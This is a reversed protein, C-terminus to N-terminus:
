SILTSWTGRIGECDGEVMGEFGRETKTRRPSSPSPRLPTLLPTPDVPHKISAQLGLLFSLSSTWFKRSSTERRAFAVNKRLDELQRCAYTREDDRSGKWM